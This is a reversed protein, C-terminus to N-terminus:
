HHTCHVLHSGGAQPPFTFVPCMFILSQMHTVHSKLSDLSKWLDIPYWKSMMVTTRWRRCDARSQEFNEQLVRRLFRRRQSWGRHLVLSKRALDLHNSRSPISQLIQGNESCGSPFMMLTARFTETVRFHKGALHRQCPLWHSGCCKKGSGSSTRRQDGFSNARWTTSDTPVVIKWPIRLLTVFSSVVNAGNVTITVTVAEGSHFYKTQM